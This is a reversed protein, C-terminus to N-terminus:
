VRREGRAWGLWERGRAEAVGRRASWRRRTDPPGHLGSRSFVAGADTDQALRSGAIAQLRDHLAQLDELLQQSQPDELLAQEVRVQEDSTLEGDLYASILEEPIKKNM